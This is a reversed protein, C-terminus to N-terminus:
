REASVTLSDDPLTTRGALALWPYVDLFTEAHRRLETARSPLLSSLDTTGRPDRATDVLLEKGLDWEPSTRPPDVTAHYAFGDKLITVRRAEEDYLPLPRAPLDVAPDLFDVGPFGRPGDFGLLGLLTPPVDALSVPGQVVRGGELLPSWLILPVRHRLEALEHTSALGGLPVIPLGHDGSVVFLTRRAWDRSAALRFFDGVAEDTYHITRMMAVTHRGVLPLGPSPSFFGRQGDDGVPATSTADQPVQFPHHNSVTLVMAAFPEPTQDLADVARRALAKDSFGWNTRTDGRPFDRGDVMRFGRPAYLRDRRYFTQDGNHIWLFARWGLARLIEPLGHLPTDPNQSPLLAGPTALLGYWYAAEGQPTYTGPSFAHEVRVGERAVRDLNPTLGPVPGGYCSVERARVGELLLFVINPALGDPLRPAAASRSPLKAALPHMESLWDGPPRPPVLDRIAVLPRRPPPVTARGNGDSPRPERALDLAALIVGNATPTPALRHAALALAAAAVAALTLRLGPCRPWRRLIPALIFAALLGASVFGFLRLLSLADV